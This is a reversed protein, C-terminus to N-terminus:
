ERRLRSDGNAVEWATYFILKTIREMRDFLIKDVEDGPRHYDEHVGTFYFIVPIGNKAFNYHDSRYYFRNPDNDDNYTYDLILGTHKENAEESIMHLEPSIKDSGILYIYDPNDVYRNDIRGIMDINLNAITNELPFLPHTVYYSSGLLGKEEGTLLMFLVSRKPGMGLRRALAFAEALELIAVTGSGNDDAGNYIVGAKKGVHDYHATIIVVEEPMETGKVYGVVNETYVVEEANQIDATVSAEQFKSIPKYRGKETKATAKLLKKYSTNFINEAMEPRILFVKEKGNGNVDMLRFQESTFYNRYMKIPSQIDEKSDGYILFVYEAGAEVAIEVKETWSSGPDPLLIVVGETEVELQTYDEANGNGVFRVPIDHTFSQLSTRIFVFDEMNKYSVGNILLTAEGLKGRILGFTQFYDEGSVSPVVNLGINRFQDRLYHAAKELGPQGTERGELSDHAVIELHRKLDQETISGALTDIKEVGQAQALYVILILASNAIINKRSLFPKFRRFLM